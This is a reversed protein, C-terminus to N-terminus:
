GRAQYRVRLSVADEGPTVERLREAVDDLADSQEPFRALEIGEHQVIWEGSSEIVEYKMRGRQM